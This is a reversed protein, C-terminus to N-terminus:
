HNQCINVHEVATRNKFSAEIDMNVHFYNSMTFINCDGVLAMKSLGVLLYFWQIGSAQARPSLVHDIILTSNEKYIM